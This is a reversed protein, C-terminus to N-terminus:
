VMIWTQKRNSEVIRECLLLERLGDRFTPYTPHEPQKGMRVAQYIEKFLQKTTDGFGENHGGPYSIINRVSVDVLAPDRMMVANPDNRKGIWLENPQESNWALSQNSGSIELSLRNKRGAAVQSVTVTGKCGGKFRLLVSAYDETAIPVDEYDSAELLKGSYTEIPKLPKKRIPHVTSFDAMVESIELGSVYEILDILHSGIDAIAKSEGSKDPELRWNYDTAFFLWDQLYNGQISHIPGIDGTERMRKMQRVLPYYRINFNVAHVLKKQEALEILERAEAVTTALPKECVVHKGALLAQRAMPFHLNNPTCIHVCEFDGNKILTEYDDFFTPIGLVEAKEAAEARIPHFLATVEVIGTRRLSEIHVPGIFGVGAVAVKIKEKM